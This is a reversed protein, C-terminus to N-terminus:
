FKIKKSSQFNEHEIQLEQIRKKISGDQDQIMNFSIGICSLEIEIQDLKEKYKNIAHPCRLCYNYINNESNICERVENM